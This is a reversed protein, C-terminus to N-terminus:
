GYVRLLVGSSGSTRHPTTVPLLVAGRFQNLTDTCSTHSPDTCRGRLSPGVPRTPDILRDQPCVLGSWQGPTTDVRSGSLPSSPSNRTRRRLPYATPHSPRLSPLPRNWPRTSPDWPLGVWRGDRLLIGFPRITGSRDGPGRGRGRGEVVM